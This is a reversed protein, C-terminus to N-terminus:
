RGSRTASTMLVVQSSPRIGGRAQGTRNFTRLLFDFSPFCHKTLRGDGIRADGDGSGSASFGDEEVM